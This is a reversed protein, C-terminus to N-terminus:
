KEECISWKISSCSSFCWNGSVFASFTKAYTKFISLAVDKKELVYEESMTKLKIAHSGFIVPSYVLMYETSKFTKAKTEAYGGGLVAFTTAEQALEWSKKVRLKRSDNPLTGPITINNRLYGLISNNGGFIASWANTRLFCNGYSGGGGAILGSTGDIEGAAMTCIDLCKDPPLPETPPPTAAATSVKLTFVLCPEFTILESIDAPFVRRIKLQYAREDVNASAWVKQFYETYKETIRTTLSNKEEFSKASNLATIDEVYAKYTEDSSLQKELQEQLPKVLETIKNIQDQTILSERNERQAIAANIFVFSVLTILGKLNTSLQQKM